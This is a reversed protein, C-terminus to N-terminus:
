LVLEQIACPNYLLYFQVLLLEKSKNQALYETPYQLKTQQNMDIHKSEM